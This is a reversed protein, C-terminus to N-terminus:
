LLKSVIVAIIIAGVNVATLVTIRTKLSAIEAKLHPMDNTRLKDVRECLTDVKDELKGGRYTLTNNGAM